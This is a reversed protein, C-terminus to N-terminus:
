GIDGAGEAVKGASNKVKNFTSAASKAARGPGGSTAWKKVSGAIQKTRKIDYEAGLAQSVGLYGLGAVKATNKVGNGIRQGMTQKHQKSTRTRHFSM